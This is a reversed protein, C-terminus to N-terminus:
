QRHPFLPLPSIRTNRYSPQLPFLAPLEQQHDRALVGDSHPVLHDQAIGGVQGPVVQVRGLDGGQADDAGYFGAEEPAGWAM